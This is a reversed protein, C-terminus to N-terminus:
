IDPNQPSEPTALLPTTAAGTKLDYKALGTNDSYLNPLVSSILGMAGLGLALNRLTKGSGGKLSKRSKRLNRSKRLSRM